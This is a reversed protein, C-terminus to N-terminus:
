RAEARKKKIKSTLFRILTSKGTGARGTVFIAPCAEQVAKLIFEYEPLVEIDSIDIEGKDIKTGLHRTIGKPRNVDRSVESLNVKKVQTDGLIEKALSSITEWINM